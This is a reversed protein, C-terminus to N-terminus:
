LLLHGEVRGSLELRLNLRCTFFLLSKHIDFMNVSPKFKDVFRLKQQHFM